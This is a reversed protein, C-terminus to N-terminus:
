GCTYNCDCDTVLTTAADYTVQAASVCASVLVGITNCTSVTADCVSQTADCIALQTSFNTSNACVPLNQAQCYGAILMFSVLTLASIKTNMDAATQLLNYVGM